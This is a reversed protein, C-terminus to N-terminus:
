GSTKVPIRLHDAFISKLREYAYCSEKSNVHVFLQQLRDCLTGFNDITNMNQVTSELADYPLLLDNLGLNASMFKMHEKSLKMGECPFYKKSFDLFEAIKSRPNVLDLPRMMKADGNGNDTLVWHNDKLLKVVTANGRMQDLAFHIISLFNERVVENSTVFLEFSLPILQDLIDVFDKEKESFINPAFTRLCNSINPPLVLYIAGNRTEPKLVASCALLSQRINEPVNDSILFVKPNCLAVLNLSSPSSFVTLLPDSGIRAYFTEMVIKCLPDADNSMKPFLHFMHQQSHTCSRALVATCLSEAAGLQMIDQNWTGDGSKDASKDDASNVELYRRSSTVAFTGNVLFPLGTDQPHPLPLFCFLNRTNCIKALDLDNSPFAISGVCRTGDSSKKGPATVFIDWQYCQSKQTSKIQIKYSSKFKDALNFLIRAGVGDSDLFNRSFSSLVQVGQDQKLCIKFKNVFQLFILFLYSSEKTMEILEKASELTYPRDCIESWESNDETRLPFRFITGQFMEGSKVKGVSFGFLGEFPKLQGAISNRTSTLDHIEGPKGAFFKAHPDLVCYSTKSVFQPLDTLNYVSNFGLGFKGIKTRDGLKTEGGFECLNHFDSDQFPKNDWFVLAPGQFQALKNNILQKTTHTRLDLMLCAETAQADDANQLLEKPISLGDPYDKLLTRIRRTLPERQGFEMASFSTRNAAFLPELAFFIM